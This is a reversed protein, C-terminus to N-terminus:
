MEDLEDLLMYYIAVQFDRVMLMHETRNDTPSRFASPVCAPISIDFTVNNHTEENVSYVCEYRHNKCLKSIILLNLAYKPALKAFTSIDREGEVTFLPYGLTFQIHLRLSDNDESVTIDVQRDSSLRAAFSTVYLYLFLFGRLELMNVSRHAANERAETFKVTYGIKDFSRETVDSLLAVTNDFSYVSSRRMANSSLMYDLIKEMRREIRRDTEDIVRKDLTFTKEDLCRVIDCIEYGIDCLDREHEAFVRSLANIQLMSFFVWLSCSENMRKYPMVFANSRRDGTDVSIVSPKKRFPINEYESIGGRDLHFQIHTNRRPLRINKMAASNNYVVLGSANCIIIPTELEDPSSIYDIYNM